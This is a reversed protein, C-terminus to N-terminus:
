STVKFRPNKLAFLYHYDQQKSFIFQEFEQKSRNEFKHIVNQRDEVYIAKETENYGVALVENSRVAIMQM